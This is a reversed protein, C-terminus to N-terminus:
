KISYLNILRVMESASSTPTSDSASAAQPLLAVDVVVCGDDGDGTGLAGASSDVSPSVADYASSGGALKAPFEDNSGVYTRSIVCGTEEEFKGTIGPDAYGEWTLISLEGAQAEAPVVVSGAIAIGAVLASATAVSNLIRSM